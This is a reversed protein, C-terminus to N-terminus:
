KMFILFIKVAGSMADMLLQVAAPQTFDLLASVGNWWRVMAPQGTKDKLFANQRALARYVDCDPSVFPCVWLMVKFGMGHLATMMAKPDSFRGPHFGWKGYNEQWNDDIMLVGSDFGNAIIARAYKLVDRQNQDYMLEIWTNYQPHAFLYEDPMKGSPRFYTDRAFLFAERLTHGGISHEVKGTQAAVRLTNGNMAYTIPEDCWVVDGHSSLLLPQIQNGYNNATLTASYGNTIPMASGHTVVGGWWAVNTQNPLVVENAKAEALTFFLGALVLRLWPIQKM